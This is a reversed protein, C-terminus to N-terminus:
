VVILKLLTRTGPLALDSHPWLNWFWFIGCKKVWHSLFHSPFSFNSQNCHKCWHTIEESSTDTPVEQNVHSRWSTASRRRDCLISDNQIKRDSAQKKFRLESVAIITYSQNLEFVSLEKGHKTECITNFICFLVINWRTSCCIMMIAKNILKINSTQNILHPWSLTKLLRKKKDKCWCYQIKQM